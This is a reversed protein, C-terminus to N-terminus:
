KDINLLHQYAVLSIPIIVKYNILINLLLSHYKFNLCHESVKLVDSSHLYGNAM